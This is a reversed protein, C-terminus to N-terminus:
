IRNMQALTTNYWKEWNPPCYKKANDVSITYGYGRALGRVHADIAEEWSGWSASGWGWANHPKFCNAGLTSETFAIAPSWRPDVGYTWAAVAFTRGQGALASGALYADIRGAWESVFADQESTWDAGDDTPQEVAPASEAPAAPESAEADAAASKESAAESAAKEARAAEEAEAAAKAEAEQRAQEAAAAAEAEARAQEQARRQAEARLEQAEELSRQADDARTGAAEKAEELALAREDLEDKLQALQRMEEANSETIRNFYDLRVLFDNFDESGLLLDLVGQKQQGIKYLERAAANSREIQAPLTAEIESIREMNAAIDEEAQAYDAKAADYEAATREIEQQFEDALPDIDIDEAYALQAGALSAALVVAAGM